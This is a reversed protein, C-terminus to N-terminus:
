KEFLNYSAIKYTMLTPPFLSRGKSKTSIEFIKPNGNALTDKIFETKNTFLSDQNLNDARLTDISYTYLIAEDDQVTRGGWKFPYFGGFIEPYSDLFDKMGSPKNWEITGFVNIMSAGFTWGNMEKPNYGFIKTGPAFANTGDPMYENTLIWMANNHYVIDDRRYSQNKDYEGQFQLKIRGLNIKAM